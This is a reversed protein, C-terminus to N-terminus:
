AFGRTSAKDFDIIAQVAWHGAEASERLKNIAQSRNLGNRYLTKFIARIREIDAAEIGRRELGVKNITRVVAPNGDAIMFPPVDQVLKSAAGVMAHNGIRCFQHVGVGWGINAFDGVEVHGGLAAHSSMILHSGVKCDHAVHSYALVVNNDGIETFEGDDTALHVSVYERFTNNDGIRLGPSGGSFKLDHTKAGIYAYPFVQNGQGMVTMGEVTAHHHIISERGIRVASGVYAYAGVCVSEDLEAGAEIHATPHIKTAM